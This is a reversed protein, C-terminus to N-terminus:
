LRSVHWARCLKCSRLLLCYCLLFYRDITHILHFFCAAFLRQSNKKVCNNLLLTHVLATPMYYRCLLTRATPAVSRIANIEAYDKDVTIICNNFTSTDGSLTKASSLFMEIHAQDERALLCQIVPLGHGHRDVVALTYLPMGLANLQLMVVANHNVYNWFFYQWCM